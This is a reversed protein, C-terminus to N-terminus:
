VRKRLAAWVVVLQRRLPGPTLDANLVDFRRARLRRLYAETIAALLLAPRAADAISDLTRAKALEDRAADAIRAAARALGPESRLEKLAIASTGADELVSAPLMVRGRRAHFPVARLLGTMGYATGVARAAQATQVNNGTLVQAMAESLAGSTAAAYARFGDLTAPPRSDLEVERGELMEELRTPSLASRQAALAELVEHRRPKGAFTEAIAERWWQLRIHGLMPEVVSERVRALEHNFAILAFLAERRDSPAFLAVLYRDYDARRVSRGLPSLKAESPSALVTM